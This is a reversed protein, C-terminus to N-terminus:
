VLARHSTHRPSPAPGAPGPRKRPPRDSFRLPLSRASCRGPAPASGGAQPPPRRERPATRRATSLTKEHVAPGAATQPPLRRRGNVPSCLALTSPHGLPRLLRDRFGNPPVDRRSPEFGEGEALPRGRRCPWRWPPPPPVIDLLPARAASPARRSLTHVERHRPNLDWGRRWCCRPTETMSVGENIEGPPGLVPSPPDVSHRDGRPLAEDDQRRRKQE